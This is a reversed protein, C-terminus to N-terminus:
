HGCRQLDPRYDATLIVFPHDPATSRPGGGPQFEDSLACKKASAHERQQLTGARHRVVVAFGLAASHCPLAARHGRRFRHPAGALHCPPTAHRPLRSPARRRPPLTPRRPQRLPVSSALRHPPLSPGRPRCSAAVSARWGSRLSSHPPEPSPTTQVRPCLTRYSVSLCPSTLVVSWRM